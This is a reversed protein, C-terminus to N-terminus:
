FSLLMPFFGVRSIQDFLEGGECSELAMDEDCLWNYNFFLNKKLVNHTWMKKNLGFFFLLFFISWVM